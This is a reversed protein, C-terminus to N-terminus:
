RRENSTPEFKIVAYLSVLIILVSSIFYITNGARDNKLIINAVAYLPNYKNFSNDPNLLVFLGFIAMTFISQVTNSHVKKLLTLNYGLFAFPICIIISVTSYLLLKLFSLPLLMVVVLNLFNVCIFSFIIQTLLNGLFFCWPSNNISFITKLSGYEKLHLAYIGIGYVYACIIIYVWWFIMDWESTVNSHNMFFTILPLTISWLLSIKDKLLMKINFIAYSTVSILM